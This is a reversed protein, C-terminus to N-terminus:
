ILPSALLDTIEVDIEGLYNYFREFPIKFLDTSINKANESYRRKGLNYEIIVERDDPDANECLVTSMLHRTVGWEEDDGLIERVREMDAFKHIGVLYGPNEKAASLVRKAIDYKERGKKADMIAGIHSKQWKEWEAMFNM